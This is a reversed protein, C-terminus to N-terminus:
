LPKSCDRCVQTSYDWNSGDICILDWMIYMCTYGCIVLWGGQDSGHSGTFVLGLGGSVAWGKSGPYSPCPKRLM